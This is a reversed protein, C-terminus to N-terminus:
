RGAVRERQALIEAVQVHTADNRAAVEFMAVSAEAAEDDDRAELLRDFQELYSDAWTPLDPEMGM